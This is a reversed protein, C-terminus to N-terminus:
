GAINMKTTIGTMSCPIASFGSVVSRVHIPLQSYDDHEGKFTSEFTFM